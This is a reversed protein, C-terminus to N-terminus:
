QRDGATAPRQRRGLPALQFSGPRAPLRSSDHIVRRFASDPAETGSVERDPRLQRDLLVLDDVRLWDLRERGSRKWRDQAPPCDVIQEIANLVKALVLVDLVDSNPVIGHEPVRLLDDHGALRIDKVATGRVLQAGQQM